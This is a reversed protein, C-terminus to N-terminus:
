IAVILGEAQPLNIWVLDNNIIEKVTQFSYWPMVPVKGLTLLVPSRIIKVNNETESKLLSKRHRSTLITFQLNKKSLGDVLRQVCVTLGSIHPRYYSLTTLIKM